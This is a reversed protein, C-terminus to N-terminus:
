QGEKNSSIRELDMVKGDSQEFALGYTILAARVDRAVSAREIYHAETIATSGHGLQEQAAEIGYERKVLTAVTRRCSHPTVWSLEPGLAARWSRRLNSPSLWNGTSTVFVAGHPNAFTPENMRRQLAEAAFQPLLVTVNPAGSKRHAQRYLTEGRQRPTVLTGCITLQPPTADLDVDGYKIALVEGIRAGTALLLILADRLDASPKPGPRVVVSGDALLTEGRSYRDIARLVEAFVADSVARTPERKASKLRGVELAPSRNIIDLRVAEGFIGRCLVKAHRAFSPTRGHIERLLGDIKGVTVESITLEGIRPECLRRWVDLYHNYTQQSVNPPKKLEFWHVALEKVLSKQTLAAPGTGVYVRSQLKSQLARRASDASPGNAEVLRLHGDLDRLRARAVHVRGRKYTLIKGWEGPALRERGM